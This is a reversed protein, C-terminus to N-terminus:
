LVATVSVECGCVQPQVFPIECVCGCVWEQSVCYEVVCDCVGGCGQVGTMIECRSLLCLTM